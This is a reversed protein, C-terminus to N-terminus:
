VTTDQLIFAHQLLQDTILFSLLLVQVKDMYGAVAQSSLGSHQRPKLRIRQINVMALVLACVPSAQM